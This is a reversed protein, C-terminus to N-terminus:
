TVTCRSVTPIRYRRKNKLKKLRDSSLTSVTHGQARAEMAPAYILSCVSICDGEFLCGVSVWIIAFGCRKVVVM